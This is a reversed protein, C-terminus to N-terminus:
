PGVQPFFRKGREPNMKFQFWSHTSGVIRLFLLAPTDTPLTLLSEQGRVGLSGRPSDPSEMGVVRPETPRLTQAGLLPITGGPYM